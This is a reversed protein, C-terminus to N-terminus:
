APRATPHPIANATDRAADRVTDADRKADRLVSLLSRSLRQDHQGRRRGRPACADHGHVVVVINFACAVRSALGPSHLGAARSRVDSNNVFAEITHIQM